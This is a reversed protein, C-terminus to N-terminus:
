KGSIEVIKEGAELLEIAKPLAGSLIEQLKANSTNGCTLWIIQPPAGRQTVLDVLDVDKTMIVVSEIKAKEFRATPQTVSDLNEFPLPQFEL